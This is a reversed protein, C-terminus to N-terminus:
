AAVKWPLSELAFTMVAIVAGVIMAVAISSEPRVVLWWAAGGAIGGAGICVYELFVSHRPAIHISLAITLGFAAGAALSALIERGTVSFFGM